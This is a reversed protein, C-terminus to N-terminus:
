CEDSWIVKSTKATQEPTLKPRRKALGMKGSTSDCAVCRARLQERTLKRNRKITQWIHRWDPRPREAAQQLFNKVPQWPRGINLSFVWSFVILMGEEIPSLEHRTTKGMLLPTIALLEHHHRM